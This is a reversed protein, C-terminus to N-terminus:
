QNNMKKAKCLYKKENAVRACKKCIYKPRNVLRTIDEIKEEIIEKRLDCLTTFDSKM